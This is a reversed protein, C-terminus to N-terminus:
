IGRAATAVGITLKKQCSPCFRRSKRDADSLSNSFSMVCRMDSCHPLGFTHGIEHLAEKLLRERLLAADAGLRLRHLSVVAARGPLDAMGFVFNLDQVYLDADTVALVRGGVTRHAQDLLMDARYQGRSPTCATPDLNQNPATTTKIGSRSLDHALSELEEGSACSVPLLVLRPEAPDSRSRLRYTEALTMVPRLALVGACHRPADRIAKIHTL